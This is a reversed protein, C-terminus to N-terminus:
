QLGTSKGTTWRKKEVSYIEVTDLYGHHTDEGHGYGGIVVVSAKGDGDRVVGCGMASRGTPMKPLGSWEGSQANFMYSNDEAPGLGTAFIHSANIGAVCFSSDAEPIPALGRFDEGTTTVAVGDDSCCGGGM